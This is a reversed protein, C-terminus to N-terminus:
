RQGAERYGREFDLLCVIGGGILFFLLLSLIALNANGTAALVSSFLIPGAFSTAKGTLNFFGFFEATHRRPTMSGMTARSVSQVGGMVLALVAGMCWFQWRTTVFFAAVLLGIWVALTLLLARKQGLRDSLWGVVIAGPIAVLQIMLVVAALEGAQMDLVQMAFVSAQNIVTQVGDNFVLFALLFLWLTPYTRVNRLTDIVKRLAERSAEGFSQEPALPPVKDRLILVTPLSFLGWWLGMILVGARLRPPVVADRSTVEGELWGYKLSEPLPVDPPAARHPQGDRLSREGRDALLHVAFRDDHPVWIHGEAASSGHTGFDFPPVVAHGDKERIALGNVVAEPAEGDTRRLRLVLRGDSVEVPYTRTLVEGAATEFEDVVAGQLSFEMPGRPAAADGATITVEYQGPPLEVAFLADASANYDGSLADGAPLGLWEGRLAIGMAAVLPIAGGIYGLAFGWASVRNIESDGAIEPLFGNYFGLSLEFLLCTMFFAAIVLEPREPPLLAMLVAFAAGPLATWALWRSKSARADAMAGCIPSLFAALLMSIGIGYGYAIIGANGPLVVNQIYAVVITILLTSYASNAWDYMCWAFIERRTGSPAFAASSSSPDSTTM